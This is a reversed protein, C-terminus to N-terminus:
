LDSPKENDSGWDIELASVKPDTLFESKSNWGGDPMANLIRNAIVKTVGHYALLRDKTPVFKPLSSSNVVSNDTVVAGEKLKTDVIKLGNEIGVINANLNSVINLIQEKLYQKIIPHRKILEFKTEDVNFNYDPLIALSVPNGEGDVENIVLVNALKSFITLSNMM